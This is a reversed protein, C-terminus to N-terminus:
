DVNGNFWGIVTVKVWGPDDTDDFDLFLTHGAEVTAASITTEDDTYPNSGTTCNVADVVSNNSAGDADYEEVEFASDDVDAWAKIETVTFIMGTENSWIMTKDRTAADLDQPTFVTAQITKLKGALKFQNTGDYARMSVDGTVNGADNDQAIEGTADVDPDNSNPITPGMYDTGEVAASINGAGDAKVIGTIAGVIPDTESVGGVAATVYTVIAKETPVASDSNGAMTGDISFENIANVITLGAFTPSAATHIDQPGSLTITGAGNTVTVRNTTGTIAAMVPDAGTSGIPIQGNTGPGLPTIAGTGSGLLIAHDTLTAIGTGGKGVILPDAIGITVGGSGNDAATTEDAVASVFTNLTALTNAQRVDNGDNVVYLLRDYTWRTSLDRVPGTFEFEAYVVSGLLVLIIVAKKM